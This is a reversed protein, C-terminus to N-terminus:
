HGGGPVLQEALTVCAVALPPSDPHARPLLSMGLLLLSIVQFRAGPVQQARHSRFAEKGMLASPWGREARQSSERSLELGPLSVASRVDGVPLPLAANQSARLKYM